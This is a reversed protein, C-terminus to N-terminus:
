SQRQNKYVEYVMERFWPPKQLVIYILMIGLIPIPIIIDVLGLCILQIIIKTTTKM